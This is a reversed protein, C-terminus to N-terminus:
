RTQEQSVPQGIIISNLYTNFEKAGTKDLGLAKLMDAQTVYKGDDDKMNLSTINLLLTNGMEKSKESVVIVYCERGDSNSFDIRYEGDISKGDKDKNKNNKKIYEFEDGTVQLKVNGSDVVFKMAELESIKNDRSIAYIALGILAIVVTALIGIGLPTAAFAALPALASTSSVWHPASFAATVGVVYMTTLVVLATNMKRLQGRHNRFISM